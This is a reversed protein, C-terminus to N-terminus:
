SSLTVPDCPVYGVFERRDIIEKRVLTSRTSRHEGFLLGV